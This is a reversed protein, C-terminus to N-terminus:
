NANSDDNNDRYSIAEKAFALFSEHSAAYGLFPHKLLSRANPRTAADLQTCQDVFSKLEDSWRNPEDWDPRGSSAILYLAKLYPYDMYPPQGQAMEVVVIGFSWIDVKTGHPRGKIIEPSMWYPTGVVAVQTPTELTLQVAMGFDTIKVRGQGNILLNDSRIDRHIRLNTHLYDLGLLVDQCVRAMLPETLRKEPYCELVDTLSGVAMYEYVIYLSEDFYHCSRYEVIAPHCNSKLILIENHIIAMRESSSPIVKIAVEVGTALEKSRFMEGSEGEAFLEYPEFLPDPDNSDVLDHVDMRPTGVLSGSTAKEVQLKQMTVSLPRSRRNKDKLMSQRRDLPELATAVPQSISPEPETAPPLSASNLPYSPISGTAPTVSNVSANSQNFPAILPSSSLNPAPIHPLKHTDTISHRSLHSLTSSRNAQYGGGPSIVTESASGLHSTSLTSAARSSALSTNHQSATSRDVSRRDSRHLSSKDHISSTPSTDKRARFRDLLEKWEEPLQDYIFGVNELDVHINHKFNYPLGIANAEWARVYKDSNAASAPLLVPNLNTTDMTQDVDGMPFNQQWVDPVGLYKGTEMDIEIHVGHHVQTPRGIEQIGEAFLPNAAPRASTSTRPDKGGWFRNRGETRSGRGQGATAHGDSGPSGSGDSKTFGPLGATKFNIRSISKM